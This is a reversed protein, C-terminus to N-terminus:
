IIDIFTLRDAVEQKLNRGAKEFLDEDTYKWPVDQGGIYLVQSYNKLLYKLVELSFDSPKQGYKILGTGDFNDSDIFDESDRYIKLGDKVFEKRLQSIYGGPWRGLMGRNTFLLFSSPSNIIQRMLSIKETEFRSVWMRWDSLGKFWVSDIDSVICYKTNVKDKYDKWFEEITDYKYSKLKM